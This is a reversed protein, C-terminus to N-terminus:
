VGGGGTTGGRVIPNWYNNGPDGFAGQGSYNVAGLGGPSDFNIVQAHVMTFCSSLLGAVISFIIVRM